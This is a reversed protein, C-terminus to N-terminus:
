RLSITSHRDAALIGRIGAGNETPYESATTPQRAISMAPCMFLSPQDYNELYTLLDMKKAELIIEHDIYPM